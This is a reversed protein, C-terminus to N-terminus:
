VHTQPAQTHTEALMAEAEAIAEPRGVDCWGGAHVMGFARGRAILLDWLLNLSFVQDPIDALLDSRIIQAGAYVFDGLRAIRGQADIAFDGGGLRARAQALPVLALLADMDDRWAQALTALPNPGTWVVDPNLTAVPGAGLLPLAKRLGGGTDLLEPEHSIAVDTGALHDAIQGGLYHTNVVIRDAGAQRGMELARDLLSRGAVKILPKPRTDTLPAMRTGLGAAFIMLPPM